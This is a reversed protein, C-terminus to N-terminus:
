RKHKILIFRITLICIALLSFGVIGWIWSTLDKNVIIFVIAILFFTALENMIRLFISSYPTVDRLIKQLTYEIWIHYLTLVAVFGLKLHIFPLNWWDYITLLWLGFIYTFLMSPWGIGYWLRKEMIKFQNILILRENENKKFSETHYVFLRVIYFLAAFWTVVFIIHLSKIFSVEM